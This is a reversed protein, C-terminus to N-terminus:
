SNTDLRGWHPVSNQHSSNRAEILMDFFQRSQIGTTENTFGFKRTYSMSVGTYNISM